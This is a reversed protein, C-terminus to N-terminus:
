HTTAEVPELYAALKERWDDPIPITRMGEYDYCVLVTSGEFLLDDTGERTMRYAFEFSKHGIRTVWTEVRIVDPFYTQGRFDVKASALIMPLRDAGMVEELFRVRAEEMYTFYNANNVHGFMDTDSFRVRLTSVHRV